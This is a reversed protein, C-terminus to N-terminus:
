VTRRGEFSPENWVDLYVNIGKYQVWMFPDPAPPSYETKLNTYSEHMEEVYFQALPLASKLQLARELVFGPVEGRYHNIPDSSWRATFLTETLAKTM